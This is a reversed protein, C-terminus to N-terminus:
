EVLAQGRKSQKLLLYSYGLAVTPDRATVDIRDAARFTGAWVGTMLTAQLRVSRGGVHRVDLQVENSFNSYLGFVSLQATGAATDLRGDAELYARTYTAQLPVATAGPRPLVTVTINELEDTSVGALAVAGIFPSTPHLSTARVHMQEPVRYVLGSLDIPVGHWAGGCFQDPKVFKYEFGVQDDAGLGVLRTYRVDAESTIPGM